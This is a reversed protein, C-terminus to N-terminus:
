NRRSFENLEWEAIKNFGGAKKSVEYILKRYAEINIQPWKISRMGLKEHIITRDLPCHVPTKIKGLCWRYKLYLNFIKQAVGFTIRGDKLIEEFKTDIKKKLQDISQIHEESLLIRIAYKKKKIIRRVEEKIAKRFDLKDRESVDNRYINVRQFAGGFTLIWIENEIFKEKANKTM